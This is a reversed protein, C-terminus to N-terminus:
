NPLSGEQEILIATARARYSDYGRLWPGCFNSDGQDNIRITQDVHRQWFPLRKPNKFDTPSLTGQIWPDPGCFAMFSTLAQDILWSNIGLGELPGANTFDTVRAVNTRYIDSGIYLIEASATTTSRIDNTSSWSSTQPLSRRAIFTWGEFSLKVVVEIRGICDLQERNSLVDEALIKRDSDHQFAEFSSKTVILYTKTMKHNNM